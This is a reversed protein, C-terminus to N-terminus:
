EIRMATAPPSFWGTVANRADSASDTIRVMAIIWAWPLWVVTPPKVPKTMAISSSIEGSLCRVSRFWGSCRPSVAASIIKRRM